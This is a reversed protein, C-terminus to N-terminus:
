HGTHLKREVSQSYQSMSFCFVWYVMACFAYGEISYGLWKPDTSAAQVIGLFDFLGIILVLTTDKFLGIFNGVIGPIVHKLAQPLIIFTMSKWYTLGLAEAGEYQGKPIAQLGGRVTEATYAASFLMVGVLARVLKDFNVGEPLFLPFMVSSMFLVTILPVGRWLEIFGTCFASVAPMKSRRGLALLLGIPFSGVIGVIAIILTLSLGGWMPTEVEVLGFSGGALLYFGIVPYVFLIFAGLWAKHRFSEIFMPVMLVVLLIFTSDIRWREAEPYFGYMFQSLRANIFVWCAGGSDCAERSDGRFDANILTWSITPPVLLYIVYIAFITLLTNTTNSFLNTRLWGVVGVTSPPPPLDPHSGTSYQTESTM